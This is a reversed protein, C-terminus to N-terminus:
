ISGPILIFLYQLWSGGVAEVCDIKESLLSPDGSNTVQRNLSMAARCGGFGVTKAKQKRSL